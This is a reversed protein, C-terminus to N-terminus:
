KWQLLRPLQALDLLFNIMWVVLELILVLAVWALDAQEGILSLGEGLQWFRYPLYLYPVMVWVVSSLKRLTVFESLIQFGLMLFYSAFIQWVLSEGQWIGWMLAGLPPLIGLIQVSGFWYKFWGPLPRPLEYANVERWGWATIALYGTAIGLFLSNEFLFHLGLSM